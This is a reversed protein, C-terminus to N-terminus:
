ERDGTSVVGRVPTAAWARWYPIRKALFDRRARPIRGDADVIDELGDVHLLRDALVPGMEITPMIACARYRGFGTAHVAIANRLKLDPHLRDFSILEEDPGSMIVARQKSLEENNEFEDRRGYILIFHPQMRRFKTYSEPIGYESVFKQINVPESFWARWQALQNRAQTFQHTPIADGKFILKTPSEIEILTPYWTASHTSIWMFDPQRSRLGSLQPQSILATHLPSHGSPAGPTWAGPVFCPNQELFVQM